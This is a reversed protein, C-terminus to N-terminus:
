YLKYNGRQRENGINNIIVIGLIIGVLFILSIIFIEVRNENIILKLIKNSKYSSKM